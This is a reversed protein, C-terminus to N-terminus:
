YLGQNVFVVAEFLTKSDSFVRLRQAKKERRIYIKSNTPHRCYTKFRVCVKEKSLM